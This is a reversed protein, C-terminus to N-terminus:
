GATALSTDSVGGKSRVLTRTYLGCEFSVSFTLDKQSPMKITIANAAWPNDQNGMITTWDGATSTWPVLTLSSVQVANKASQAFAAGSGIAICLLVISASVFRRRM